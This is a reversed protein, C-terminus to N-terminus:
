YLKGNECHFSDGSWRASDGEVICYRNCPGSKSYGDNCSFTALTYRDFGGLFQHKSYQVNGNPLNIHPCVQDEVIFKNANLKKKIPFLKWVINNNILHEVM